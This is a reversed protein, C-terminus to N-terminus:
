SFLYILLFLILASLLIILFSILASGSLLIPTIFLGLYINVVFAIIIFVYIQIGKIDAKNKFNLLKVIEIKDINIYDHTNNLISSNYLKSNKDHENILTDLQNNLISSNYLKSNKDHENILTDLQSCKDIDEKSVGDLDKKKVNKDTFIKLNSCKDFHELLM